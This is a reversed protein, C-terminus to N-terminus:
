VNKLFWNFIMEEILDNSEGIEMTSGISHDVDVTKYENLKYWESNRRPM